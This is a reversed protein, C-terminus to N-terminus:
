RFAYWRSFFNRAKERAAMAPHAKWAAVDGTGAALIHDPLSGQDEM